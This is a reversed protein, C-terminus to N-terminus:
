ETGSSSPPPEYGTWKKRAESILTRVELYESRSTEQDIQRARFHPNAGQQLLMKVMEKQNARAANRLTDGEDEDVDAGAELLAQAIRLNKEDKVIDFLDLGYAEAGADLLMMVMKEHGGFAANYLPALNGKLGNWATANARAGLLMEVSKESGGRAAEELARQLSKKDVEAGESLLMKVIQDHGGAAARILALGGEACADAGRDLLMEVIGVHGKGAAKVLAEGDKQYIDMGSDLLSKFIGVHGGEAALTLTQGDITRIDMGAKLLMKAITEHGSEAARLLADGKGVNVDAGYELLLKVVEERGWRAAKELAWGNHANVDAEKSLLLKIVEMHGKEVARMLAAGGRSNINAGRELLLAVVNEHGFRAAEVLAKGGRVNVAAELPVQGRQKNFHGENELMMRIASERGRYSAVILMAETSSIELDLLGFLARFIDSYGFSVAAVLPNNPQSKLDDIHAGLLLKKRETYVLSTISTSAYKLWREYRWRHQKEPNLFKQLSEKVEGSYIGLNKCNQIHTPWFLAAYKFFPDGTRSTIGHAAPARESGSGVQIDPDCLLSLCVTTAMICNNTDKFGDLTELFERVSLHSFRLVNLETDHVILNRCTKLLAAVNGRPQPGSLSWGKARLQLEIASALEEPTLPRISCMLWALTMKAIEPGSGEQMNIQKYIEHYMKFLGRPLKGLKERIDSETELRCLNEIQLAVWQFMGNAGGVLRTYMLEKLELSVDGRLLEREEISRDIKERVFKKIDGENDKAEIHYNPFKELQLTTDDNSRSSVFIKVLNKSSAIIHKLAELLERRTNTDCEDLADVVLITQKYLQSFEVILNRSETSSLPDSLRGSLNRKEYIEVLPKLLDPNTPSLALQKALTKMVVECSRRSGENRDFYFYALGESPHRSKLLSDVVKSTLRTKGAGPIGRLLLVMSASSSRWGIYEKRELLWEGTGDLRTASIRQHHHDYPVASTWQLIAARETRELKSYTGAIMAEFRTTTDTLNALFSLVKHFHLLEEDNFFKQYSIELVHAERCMDTELSEIEDFLTWLDDNGFTAGASRAAATRSCINKAQVLFRFIATYLKVLSGELAVSSIQESNSSNLHAPNFLDSNLYLKEYIACRDILSGIKELGILVIGTTGNAKVIAQLLFRFGVWPLVAHAPDYQSVIDGITKFKDIWTIIRSVVDHLLLEKGKWNFKSRKEYCTSRYMEADARADELAFHRHESSELFATCDEQPLTEYAKDWLSIKRITVFKVPPTEQAPFDFKFDPLGSIGGVINSVQSISHHLPEIYRPKSTGDPKELGRRSNFIHFILDRKRSKRHHQEPALM